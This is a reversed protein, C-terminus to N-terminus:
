RATPSGTGSSRDHISRALALCAKHDIKGAATHPIADVVFLERPAKYSALHRKVHAALTTLELRAGERLTVVATVVQGFRENPLGVVAADAVADHQRIVEEVEHPFVKEGGTNVVSSGRGLLRVTGDPEIRGYDGTVCYRTGDISVFTAESKEPDKYYGDALHGRILLAGRTGPVSTDLLRGHKDVMQMRNSAAIAGDEPVADVTSNTAVGRLAESSGYNDSLVARPLHRLLGARVVRSWRSGSSVILQLRSLDYSDPDADLEALLPRAFADGVIVLANVHHDAVLRWLAAPDFHEAASTEVAWGENMLSLSTFLGTGHMLPCAVYLRKGRELRRVVDDLDAAPPRGLYFNAATGLARIVEHQRWVVGKPLGTTGGTYLLLANDGGRAALPGSPRTSGSPESLESAGVSAEYPEAWEALPSGDDVALCLRLGPLEDLCRALTPGYRAHFVVAEADSNGLVHVLEDRGYRYNINVPVLAAKFCALYVELFEPCNRLYVAVKAGPTLGARLLTGALASSRRDFEAWTVTRSGQIQCPAEPMADAIAEYIDAYNWHM